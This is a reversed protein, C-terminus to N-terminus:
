SKILKSAESLFFELSQLTEKCPTMNVVLGDHHIRRHCNACVVICKNIEDVTRQKTKSCFLRSVETDKEVENLHHFDLCVGIKMECNFCGYKEKILSSAKKFISIRNRARAKHKETNAKYSKRAGIRNCEKCKPQLGDKRVSCKHFETDDKQLHCVSCKKM